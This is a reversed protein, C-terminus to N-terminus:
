SPPMGHLPLVTASDIRDGSIPKAGTPTSKRRKGTKRALARELASARTGSTSGTTAAPRDDTSDCSPYQKRLWDVVDVDVLVYARGVRAAPLGRHRIAHSVTDETTKLFAAAEALTLTIM